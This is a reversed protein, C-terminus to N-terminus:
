RGLLLTPIARVLGAAALASERVSDRAAALERFARQLRLRLRPIEAIRRQATSVRTQTTQALRVVPLDRYAEVRGKLPRVWSFVRVIGVVASSIGIVIGAALVSLGATM